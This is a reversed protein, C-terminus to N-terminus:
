FNIYAGLNARNFGIAEMTEYVFSEPYDSYSQAATQRKDYIQFELQLKSKERLHYLVGLGIRLESPTAIGRPDAVPKDMFKEFNAGAYVLPSVPFKLPLIYMLDADLDSFLSFSYGGNGLGGSNDFKKFEMTEVRLTLYRTFNVTIDCSMGWYREWQYKEYGDATILFSVEHRSMKVGLGVTPQANITAAMMLIMATILISKTM